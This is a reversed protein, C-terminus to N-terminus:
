LDLARSARESQTQDLVQALSTTLTDDTTTKDIVDAVAPELDPPYVFARAEASLVVIRCDPNM